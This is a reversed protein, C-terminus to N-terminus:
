ESEGYFSGKSYEVGIRKFGDTNVPHILVRIMDDEVYMEADFKTLIDRLHLEFSDKLEKEERTFTEKAM